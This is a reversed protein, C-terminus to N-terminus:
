GESHDENKEYGAKNALYDRFGELGEWFYGADMTIVEGSKSKWYSEGCKQCEDSDFFEIIDEIATLYEKYSKKM